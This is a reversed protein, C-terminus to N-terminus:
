LAFAGSSLLPLHRLLGPFTGPYSRSRLDASSHGTERCVVTADLSSGSPPGAAALVTKRALRQDVLWALGCSHGLEFAISRYCTLWARHRCGLVPREREISGSSSRIESTNNRRAVGTRRVHALACDAHSSSTWLACCLVRVQTRTEATPAGQSCVDDETQGRGVPEGVPNPACSPLPAKATLTAHQLHRRGELTSRSGRPLVPPDRRSRGM